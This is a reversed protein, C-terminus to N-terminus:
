LVAVVDFISLSVSHLQTEDAIRVLAFNIKNNKTVSSRLECDLALTALPASGTGVAALVVTLALLGALASAAAVPRRPLELLFLLFWPVLAALHGSPTGAWLLFGGSLGYTAGALAAPAPDLGLRRALVTAGLLASALRLWGAVDPAPWAALLLAALLMPGLERWLAENGPTRPPM